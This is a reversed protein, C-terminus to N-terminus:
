SEFFKIKTPDFQPAVNIGVTVFKHKGVSVDGDASIPVAAGGQTLSLQFNDTAAGVVHYETDYSLGTPLAVGDQRSVVVTDDNVLGHAEAYIKNDVALAQGGIIEVGMPAYYLLNGVTAADYVGFGKIQGWSATAVPFTIVLKNDVMGGVATNWNTPGPNFQVRAYGNGVVETGGTGDDTPIVTFLAVHLNAAPGGTQFIWDLVQNELWDSKSGNNM